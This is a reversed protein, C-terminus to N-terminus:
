VDKASMAATAVLSAGEGNKAVDIASDAANGLGGLQWVNLKNDVDFVLHAIGTPIGVALRDPGPTADGVVVNGPDHGVEVTPAVGIRGYTAVRGEASSQLLNLLWELLLLRLRDPATGHSGM